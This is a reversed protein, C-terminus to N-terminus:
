IRPEQSRRAHAPSFGARVFFGRIQRKMQYLRSRSKGTQKVAEKVPMQGLLAALSQLEPPLRGVIRRVDLSLHLADVVGSTPRIDLIDLSDADSVQERSVLDDGLVELARRRQRMVLVAAHNRVVGRVFGHWDGRASDFKHSRRLVDQVLEQKLDDWDHSRFGASAVLLSAWCSAQQIIYPDVPTLASGTDPLVRFRDPPSVPLTPHSV